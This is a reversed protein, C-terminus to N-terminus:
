RRGDKFVKNWKKKRILLDSVQGLTFGLSVNTKITGTEVFVSFAMYSFLDQNTEAMKQHSTADELELDREM